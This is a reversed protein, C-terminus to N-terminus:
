FANKIISGFFQVDEDRMENALTETTLSGFNIVQWPWAGPTADKGGIVRSQPVATYGCPLM